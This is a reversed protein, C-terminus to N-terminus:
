CPARVDCLLNVKSDMDDPYKAGAWKLLIQWRDMDPGTLYLVVFRIMEETLAVISDTWGLPFIKVCELALRNKGLKIAMVFVSV